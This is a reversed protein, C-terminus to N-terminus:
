TSLGSLVGVADDRVEIGLHTLADFFSTSDIEGTFDADHAVCALALDKALLGKSRIRPKLAAWPDDSGQSRIREVVANMDIKSKDDKSGFHDVLRQWLQRTMTVGHKEFLREVQAKEMHSIKDPLDALPRLTTLLTSLSEIADDLRDLDIRGHQGFAELVAAVEDKDLHVGLDELAARFRAASMTKDASDDMDHRLRAVVNGGSGGDDQLKALVDPIIHRATSAAPFAEALLKRYDILRPKDEHDDHSPYRLVLERVQEPTLVLGMHKMSLFFDAVPLTGDHKADAAELVDRPSGKFERLARLTVDVVSSAESTTPRGRALVRLVLKYSLEGTKFRNVDFLHQLRVVDSRSLAIGFSSLTATFVHAPVVGRGASDASALAHSLSTFTSPASWAATTLRDLLDHRHPDLVFADFEVRSLVNPTRLVAMDDFVAQIEAASRCSRTLHAAAIAPHVYADFRLAVLGATFSELTLFGIDGRDFHRFAATLSAYPPQPATVDLNAKRRIRLCLAETLQWVASPSQRRRCRQRAAHLMRIYDIGPPSSPPRFGRILQGVAAFGQDAVVNMGLQVLAQKVHEPSLAGNWDSDYQDFLKRYDVGHDVARELLTGLVHLSQDLDLKAGDAAAPTAAAIDPAQFQGLFSELEAFAVQNDHEPREFTHLFLKAVDIFDDSPMSKVLLREAKARSVHLRGKALKHLEHLWATYEEPATRTKHHIFERALERHKERQTAKDDNGDGARLHHKLFKMYDLENDATTFEAFIARVDAADLQVGLKRWVLHFIEQEVVGSHNGDYAKFMAVVQKSQKAVVSRLAALVTPLDTKAQRSTADSEYVDLHFFAAPHIADNFHADVHDLVVRMEVANLPLHLTEVAVAAFMRRSVAESASPPPPFAQLWEKVLDTMSVGRAKAQTQVHRQLKAQVSRYSIETPWESWAMFANYQVGGGDTYFHRAIQTLSTMSLVFGVKHLVAVFESVQLAGSKAWDYRTLARLLTMADTAVFRRSNWALQQLISLDIPEVPPVHVVKSEAAIFNWVASPAVAGVRSPDLAQWAITQEASSLEVNTQKWLTGLQLKTMSADGLQTLAVQIARLTPHPLNQFRARLKALAVATPQSQVFDFFARVDVGVGHVNFLQLILQTQPLSLHPCRARLSAAFRPFAVVDDAAGNTFAAWADDQLHITEILKILPPPKAEGCTFIFHLLPAFMVRNSETRFRQVLCQLHLPKLCLPTLVHTMQKITLMGRVALSECTQVFQKQIADTVEFTARLFAEVDLLTVTSSASLQPARPAAHLDRRHRRFSRFRQQIVRAARHNPLSPVVRPMDLVFSKHSADAAMKMRQHFAAKRQEFETAASMKGAAKSTSKVSAAQIADQPEIIEEVTDVDRQIKLAATASTTPPDTGARATSPASSAATLAQRAEEEHPDYLHFGLVGLGRKFEARSVYGCHTPDYREFPALVKHRERAGLEFQRLTDRCKQAVFRTYCSPSPDIHVWLEATHIFGNLDGLGDALVQVQSPSVVIGVHQQLTHAIETKAYMPKPLREATTSKMSAQIAGVVELFLSTTVASAHAYRLFAKYNVRGDNLFGFLSMLEHVDTLTLANMQSALASSAGGMAVQFPNKWELHVRLEGVVNDDGTSATARNNTIAFWGDIADGAVLAKLPIEAVGLVGPGLPSLDVDDDMAHNDDFVTCRLSVKKFFQKLCADVSLTFWHTASTSGEFSPAGSHAVIDTFVDPFGLLQYHVYASPPEGSPTFLKRCALVSIQLDNLPGSLDDRAIDLAAAAATINDDQHTTLFARDGPYSQLHLQWIESLPIALRIVLHLTGLIANTTVHRVPVANDHLAGKSHLLKDLRLATKGVVHFEGKIAQHVELALTESALYRLFFADATIKYTAAFNYRPKSGMVLSTSQSEFDFFDCLVFTCGTGNIYKADFQAQVIWLEMLNDGAALDVAAFDLAPVDDVENEPECGPLSLTDEDDGFANLRGRSSTKLDKVRMYKLQRLQAELQAIKRLRQDAVLELEDIKRRLTDQAAEKRTVLEEIEFTLERNISTQAHLMKECRELEQTSTLHAIQLRHVKRRLYTISNSDQGDQDELFEVHSPDQGRRMVVPLAASMPPPRDLDATAQPPPITIRMPSTSRSMGEKRPPPIEQQQEKHAPSPPRQLVPQGGQPRSREEDLLQKVRLFEQDVHGKAQKVLRVNAQLEQIAAVHKQNDGRLADIQALQQKVQTELAVIKDIREKRQFADNIFPSECLSTMREELKQNQTRLMDLEDRMDKAKDVKKELEERVVHAEELESRLRHIVRNFKDMQELTKEQIEREAMAKSELNDYRANLIVLQAQRDRLERQLREMDAHVTATAGDNNHAHDTCAALSEKLETNERGLQVLQREATVLRAKLAAELSIDKSGHHFDLATKSFHDLTKTQNSSHSAEMRKVAVRPSKRKAPVVAARHKETLYRHHQAMEQTKRRLAANERRLEDIFKETEIDRKHGGKPPSDAEPTTEKTKRKLTEEVMALKTFMRKITAEQENKKKKLALYEEKLDLYKDELEQQRADAM